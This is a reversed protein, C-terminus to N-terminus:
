TAFAQADFHDSWYEDTTKQRIQCKVLHEDIMFLCFNANVLRFM